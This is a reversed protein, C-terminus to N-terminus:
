AHRTEFLARGENTLLIWLAYVGLATGFPFVLLNVLALGLMLVRGVAARRRLLVAAWIHAVGWLLSFAGISAFAAATLGAALAVAEREPGIVIALAGAALLLMSVGVLTSLAGWLSALISLLTVHRDM